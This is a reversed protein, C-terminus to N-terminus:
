NIIIVVIYKRSIGEQAAIRLGMILPQCPDIPVYNVEGTSEKQSCLSILPLLNIGDEVTTQFEQPLAVAICDTSSSLIHERVIRTFNASGHIVPLFRIRESLHFIDM